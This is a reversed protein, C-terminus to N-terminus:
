QLMRVVRAKLSNDTKVGVVIVSQGETIDGFKINTVKGAVEKTVKVKSEPEVVTEGLTLKNKSLGTVKGFVVTRGNDKIPPTVLIRQASLVHNGNTSGMAIIFDGIALDTQKLEKTIKDIKGFTTKDATISIQQIQSTKDSEDTAYKNIQISNQTIDTIIGIYSILKNSASALKEEVKKRIEDPTASQTADKKPEEKAGLSSSYIVLVKKSISAGTEDFSFIKIINVGGVLAVKTEFGGASDAKLFYDESEGSIVVSAGAQTVGTVSIPSATEVEQNEPKAITLGLTSSQTAAPTPSAKGNKPPTLAFNAKWIGYAIILGLIGGLAIAVVVEKRM